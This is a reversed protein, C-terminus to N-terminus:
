LMNVVNLPLVEMEMGSENRVQIVGKEVNVVARIKIVFDLRLLLDYNNTDVRTIVNKMKCM